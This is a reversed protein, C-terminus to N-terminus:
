TENMPEPMGEEPMEEMMAGEQPEGQPGGREGPKPGKAMKIEVEKVLTLQSSYKMLKHGAMVIVGGDSTAVMSPMGGGMMPGHMMKGKMGGRGGMMGQEEGPGGGMMEQNEEMQAFAYIGGSVLLVWVMMWVKKM